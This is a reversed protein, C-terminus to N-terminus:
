QTKLNELANAANKLDDLSKSVEKASDLAESANKLGELAGPAKAAAGAFAATCIFVGIGSLVTAIICFILGVVSSVKGKGTEGSKKLGIASLIIGVVSLALAVYQIIPFWACAIGFIGLIIALIGM